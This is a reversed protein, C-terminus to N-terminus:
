NLRPFLIEGKTVVLDGSDLWRICSSIKDATEPLFSKFLGAVNDLIVVLNLIKEKKKETEKWVEHENVYKDGFAILENIALVAEHLHFEHIKAEVIKKTGTIKDQILDDVKILDGKFSFKDFKSALGLVRASFNGLGNALEGSYVRELNALSFDGDEHSPIEKLLYYRIADRGYKKVLEFPDIVNGVSKSMKDGEIKIFGHVLIKKPLPLGVSLLMGPWIAAHFRLIDKGIVQADAPWWKEFNLNEERDSTEQRKSQGYGIASLYNSLADCWVYMVHAPDGPVPIGWPLDKSPRSFSVDELGEEILALIENKRGEPLIVLENKKIRLEIEKSYKSLRFFYNEEEVVEPKKKHDRCEGKELDKETIFRECGVCYLGKYNKKYIDGAQVLKEWVLQAGPWHRVRDSTRIFDDWSLNLASKLHKFDETIEDAFIQPDKKEEQAKRFVKVGHEDTGTLFFTKFGKERHYRALVDAQVKELAHGIHPKANAYDIATTIYYKQDM